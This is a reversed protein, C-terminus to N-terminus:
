KKDRTFKRKLKMGKPAEKEFGRYQDVTQRVKEDDGSDAADHMQTVIVQLAKQALPPMNEFQQIDSMLLQYRTSQNCVIGM